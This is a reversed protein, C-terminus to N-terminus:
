TCTGLWSLSHDDIHKNSTDNKEKKSKAIQNPFQKSLTITKTKMKQVGVYYIYQSSILLNSNCIFTLLSQGIM